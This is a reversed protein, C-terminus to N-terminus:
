LVDDDRGKVMARPRTSKRRRAKKKEKELAKPYEEAFYTLFDVAMHIIERSATEVFHGLDDWFQQSTRKESATDALYEERTYGKPIVLTPKEDGTKMSGM